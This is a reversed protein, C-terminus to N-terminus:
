IKGKAKLQSLVELLKNFRKKYFPAHNTFFKEFDDLEGSSRQERYLIIEQDQGEFTGSQFNIQHGHSDFLVKALFIAEDIVRHLPLEESQRSWKQGTHRFTKLSVNDPEYQALGLSIYRVDTGQGIHIGDFHEYPLAYVPKHALHQPLANSPSYKPGHTTSYPM